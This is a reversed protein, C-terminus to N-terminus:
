AQDLGGNTNCVKTQKDVAQVEYTGVYGRWLELATRKPIKLMGVGRSEVDRRSVM